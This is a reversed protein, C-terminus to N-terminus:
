QNNQDGFVNNSLDESNEVPQETTQEVNNEEANEVQVEPTQDFAQSLDEQNEEVVPENPVEEETPIVPEVPAIDQEESQVEASPIEESETTEPETVINAEDTIFTDSDTTEETDEESTEPEAVMAAEEELYTDPNPVQTNKVYEDYVDAQSFTAVSPDEEKEKKPMRKIYIYAGYGAGGVLGIGLLTLLFAKASGSKKVTIEYKSKTGDEATVEVTVVSGNKLNENGTIVVNANENSTIYDINLQKEKNLKVEYKKVNPDFKIDYGKIELSSLTSDDSLVENKEKKTVNILYVKETGDEATVTIIATNKGVQLDKNGAVKVKAKDSKPTAKIEIEEIEYLVTYNYSFTDDSLTMKNDNIVLEKLLANDDKKEEKTNNTSTTNTNNTTTSASEERVITINYIKKSSDEATVIVTFSNNGVKLTKKGTGSVAARSDTPKATITVTDISNKVTAKYSYVTPSFKSAIKTNTVSLESLTGVSSTGTTTGGSTSKKIINLTYTKQSGSQSTVIIKVTKTGSTLSINKSTTAEGSITIKATSDAATAQVTVTSVSSNVTATYTTRASEVTNDLPFETDGNKVTISGISNNTSLTESSRRVTFTYAKQTSGDQATVTVTISTDVGAELAVTGGSTISVTANPDTPTATVTVSAVSNDVIAGNAYNNVTISTNSVSLSSLTAVNSPGATSATISINKSASSITAAGENTNIQNNNPNFTVTGTGVSTGKVNFTALTFEGTIPTTGASYSVQTGSSVQSFISTNPSVSVVEMNSAEISGHVSTVNAGSVTGNLTCSTTKNVEISSPECTISFSATVNSVDGKLKNYDINGNILNSMVFSFIFVTMISGIIISLKKKDM